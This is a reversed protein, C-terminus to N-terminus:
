EYERVCVCAPAAIGKSNKGNNCSAASASFSANKAYGGKIVEGRTPRETLYAVSNHEMAAGGGVIVVVVVVVM